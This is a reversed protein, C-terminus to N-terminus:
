RKPNAGTPDILTSPMPTSPPKHPAAAAARRRRVRHDKGSVLRQHLQTFELLAKLVFFAEYSIANPERLLSMLTELGGQRVFGEVYTRGMWPGAAIEQHLKSLAQKAALTKSPDGSWRKLVELPEFASGDVTASFLSAHIVARHRHAVAESSAGRGLLSKHRYLPCHRQKKPFMSAAHLAPPSIGGISTM